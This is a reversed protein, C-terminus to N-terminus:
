ESHQDGLEVVSPSRPGPAAGNYPRLKGGDTGCDPCRYDPPLAAVATGPPIGAAPVGAGEDYIYYCGQCIFRHPAGGTALVGAVDPSAPVQNPTSVSDGVLVTGSAETVVYVGLDKHGFAARLATPLELDRQGTDPNVNTAGCRGNRRDVRLVTNNIRLTGGIWDFEEWPRAGDIYINARFRLPDLRYGWREELSRLTALNMLSLVNDPKDMFHGGDRGRVLRPRGRLTPVLHEVFAEVDLRGKPTDLDAVLLPAGGHDTVTLRMTEVELHTRVTALAEELMLMVFLGKKAWQPNDPDVKANSRSLAFIRDFPFPKGAELRIGRLKQASLGKVPYRYIGTVEAMRTRDQAAKTDGLKPRRGTGPRLALRHRLSPAPHPPVAAQPEHALLDHLLDHHRDLRDDVADSLRSIGEVVQWPQLAGCGLVVGRSGLPTEARQWVGASRLPYLGIRARRALVELTGAGPVGPPLTWLMHLGGGAGQVNAEGFQQVLAALAADRTERYAARLKALHRAYSGSRIFGALAAQELWPNSHTQSAKAATLPEVLSRPVVMFGLRLGAGLTETFSGIHVTRDPALGALSPLPSGEYRLDGDYDDEIIVCGTRRAWEAVARRRHMPLVGGTHYQHAPTLYLVAGGEPLADRHLGEADVPVSLLTAGAAEFASAAGGYCPDEVVATRGPGLLVRAALAYAEQAGHTVIIRSPDAAMGRTASLFTSLAARLDSLGGPDGHRSLEATGSQSLAALVLRRWGRLPFLRPNPRGPAFDFSVRHQAAAPRLSRLDQGASALSLAAGATAAEVPAPVLISPRVAFVGSAPTAAAFGEMVPIDYARVATNRSIGLQESLARSSPMRLGAPIMGREIADRLQTALQATLSEPRSRDLLVPLQM